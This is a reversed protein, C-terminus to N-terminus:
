IQVSTEDDVEQPKTIGGGCWGNHELFACFAEVFEIPECDVEVNWDLQLDNRNEALPKPVQSKLVETIEVEEQYLGGLEHDSFRKREQYDILQEITYYRKLKM